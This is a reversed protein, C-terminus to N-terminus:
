EIPLSLGYETLWWERNEISDIVRSGLSELSSNSIISIASRIKSLWNLSTQLNEWSISHKAGNIEWHLAATMDEREASIGILGHCIGNRVEIAGQLSARLTTALLPCLSTAPHGAIVIGEWIKLVAAVGHASKPVCGQARIVEDRASGEIASWVLLLSGVSGRMKEYTM